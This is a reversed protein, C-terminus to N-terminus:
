NNWTGKFQHGGKWSLLGRGHKCGHKWEGIYHSQNLYFAEGQGHPVGDKFQGKYSESAESWKRSDVHWERSCFFSWKM